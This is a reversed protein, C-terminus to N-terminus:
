VCGKEMVRLSIMREVRVLESPAQVQTFGESIMIRVYRSIFMSLQQLVYFTAHLYTTRSKKKKKKKKENIKGGLRTGALCVGLPSKVSTKMFIKLAFYVQSKLRSPTKSGEMLVHDNGLGM